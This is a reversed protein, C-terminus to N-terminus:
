EYFKEAIFKVMRTTLRWFIRRKGSRNMKSTDTDRRSLSLSLSLFKILRERYRNQLRILSGNHATIPFKWDSIAKAYVRSLSIDCVHWNTERIIGQM